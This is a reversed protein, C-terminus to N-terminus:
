LHSTSSFAMLVHTDQSIHPAPSYWSCMRLVHWSISEQHEIERKWSVLKADLHVDRLNSAAYTTLVTSPIFIQHASFNDAVCRQERKDRKVAAAPRLLYRVKLWLCFARLLAKLRAAHPVLGLLCHSCRLLCISFRLLAQVSASTLRALAAETYV